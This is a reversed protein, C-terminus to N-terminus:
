HSAGTALELRTEALRLNALADVRQMEAATMASQADLVDSNTSMGSRFSERTVRLSERAQAAGDTAIRVATLAEDRALYSQKVELRVADEAMEAAAEAQVRTADAERVTNGINGWDFVNVEAALTVSWNEYFEPEYERNPRDWNYNGVLMIQPFYRSRAAGVLNSAARAGERAAELDPRQELALGTWSELDSEPLMVGELPDVPDIETDVDIGMQFCLNAAALRLAHEARNRDLETASMRVRGAMIDSELIMGEEYFNELDDLHSRMQEVAKEMVDLAAGARVLNVYAETVAYRTEDVTRDRLLADARAGHKAAWYSNLIGGGTFIPQSVSLGISYIEDDGMPIKGGGAGAAQLGELTGEPLGVNEVLWDFPVLLPQFISGFQSADMYPVEDLRTYSASGSIRPLFASRAQGLRALGADRGAEAIVITRNSELAIGIAEDLTLALREAAPGRNAPVLVLLACTVLAAFAGASRTRGRSPRSVRM